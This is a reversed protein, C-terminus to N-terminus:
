KLGDRMATRQDLYVRKGLEEQCLRQCMRKNKAAENTGYNRTDNM